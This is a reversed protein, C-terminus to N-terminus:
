LNALLGDGQLGGDSLILVAMESIEDLVLGNGRGYIRHDIGIQRLLGPLNKRSKRGSLLLDQPHSKSNSLLVVSSELLHPLIELNRPFSDSLNLGFRQPFESMGAPRLFQLTEKFSLLLHPNRFESHPSLLGTTGKDSPRM